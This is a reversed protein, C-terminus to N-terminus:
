DERSLNGENRVIIGLDPDLHITFRRNLCAQGDEFILPKYNRLIPTKQWASPLPVKRFHHVVAWHTFTVGANLLENLRERPPAKELDVPHTGAPDLCVRGNVRHLCILRISPLTKRTLGGLSPLEGDEPLRRNFFHLVGDPDDPRPIIRTECQWVDESANKGMKAKAEELAERWTFPLNAVDETGYVEEILGEVDAPLAIEKRGTRILCLYTKLLLYREYIQEDVGFTPAEDGPPVSQALWLQPEALSQPRWTAEGDVQRHRHLRGLRQLLLDVPALDSVMLDFDLDLSQEIIQTAVLVARQPRGDRWGRKGFKEVVTNEIRQRQGFPFQSHLLFLECEQGTSTERISQYLEQARRVTNCICACCGGDTLTKRVAGALGGPSISVTSLRITRSDDVQFHRVKAYKEAVVTIRPYPYNPLSLERGRFAEVLSKRKAKPLTASLLIVSCGMRGLWRLMHELLSSTYTDYAHVEDLIVIKGALGFLRVFFHRTQLISLLGQDITGVGFPALLSRKSTAFWEEAIVNNADDDSSVASPQIAEFKPEPCLMAQSHLLHVNFQGAPASKRLFEIFRNFMQNSTAQTPLAFYVGRHGFHHLLKQEVAFAAETKGTGTPAEIVILSPSKLDAELRLATEQLINPTFGFIDHFDQTEHEGPSDLWGSRKLSNVAKQPLRKLYESLVVERGAYPFFTECSAIWDAVSIIGAIAMFVAQTEPTPPQLPAMDAIHWLEALHEVLSRQADLWTKDGIEHVTPKQSAGPFVGHHGCTATIWNLTLFDAFESLNCQKKLRQLVAKGLVDHRFRRESSVQLSLGSNKLERLIDPHTKRAMRQFVPTAKGIDHLSAWFSLWQQM